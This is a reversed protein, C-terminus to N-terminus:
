PVDRIPPRSVPGQMQASGDSAAPLSFEPPFPVVIGYTEPPAPRLPFANPRAPTAQSLGRADPTVVRTAPNRVDPMASRVQGPGTAPAKPAIAQPSEHAPATGPTTCSNCLEFPAQCGVKGIRVERTYGFNQVKYCCGAAMVLSSLFLALGTTRLRQM